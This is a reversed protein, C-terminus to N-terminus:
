ACGLGDRLHELNREMVEVYDEGADVQDPTLGEIPDLVATQVKAEDALTEAVAPDVLTETFITRVGEDRVLDVLEALRAANPENAPSIGAIAHQELDYRAALYGFAAHSVVLTRRRCSALTERYRDDLARLRGAYEEAAREIRATHQPLLDTLADRVREVFTLMSVPDLWAHPDQGGAQEGHDAHEEGSGLAELGELLDLSPGTREGIAEEVAPQFGAGVYLVLAATRIRELDAPGLEVDHPEAGPPTLEGVGVLGDGVQRGVEALPYLAAVVEPESASPGPSCAVSALLVPLLLRRMTLIMSM